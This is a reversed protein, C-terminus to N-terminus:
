GRTRSCFSHFLTTVINAGLLVCRTFLISPPNGRAKAKTELSTSPEAPYISTQSSTVAPSYLAISVQISSLKTRYLQLRTRKQSTPSTSFILEASSTLPMSYRAIHQSVSSSRQRQRPRETEEENEDDEMDSGRKRKKNNPSGTAESETESESYDSEQGNDEIDPMQELKFYAEREVELEASIDGDDFVVIGGKGPRYNQKIEGFEVGASRSRANGNMEDLASEPPSGGFVNGLNWPRRADLIWFEVGGTPDPVEETSDLGFAEGLDM